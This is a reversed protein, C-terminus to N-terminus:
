SEDGVDSSQQGADLKLVVSCVPLATKWIRHDIAFVFGATSAYSVELVSLQGNFQTVDNLLLWTQM